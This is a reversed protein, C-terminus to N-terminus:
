SQSPAGPPTLWGDFTDQQHEGPEDLVVGHVALKAAAIANDLDTPIVHVGPQYPQSALRHCGLGQVAFSLDMIEIPHGLGGAINVLAGNALVFLEKPEM